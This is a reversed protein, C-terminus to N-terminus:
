PAHYDDPITEGSGGCDIEKTSDLERKETYIGWQCIVATGGRAGLGSPATTPPWAGTAWATM